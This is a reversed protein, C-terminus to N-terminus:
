DITVRAPEPASWARTDGSNGAAEVKAPKGTETQTQAVLADQEAVTLTIGGDTVPATVVTEETVAPRDIVSSKM